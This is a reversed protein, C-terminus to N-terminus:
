RHSLSSVNLDDNAHTAADAFATAVGHLLCALPSFHHRPTLRICAPDIADEIGDCELIPLPVDEFRFVEFGREALAATAMGHPHSPFAPRRASLTFPFGDAAQRAMARLQPQPFAQM